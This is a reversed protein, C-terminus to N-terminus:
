FGKAFGIGFSPQVTNGSIGTVTMGLTLYMQNAPAGVQYAVLGGGTFTGLTVATAVSLGAQGIAFLSFKGQQFVAYAAGTTVIAGTRIGPVMQMASWSYLNSDSVRVGFTGVTSTRGLFTDASSYPSISEGAGFVYQPLGTVATAAPQTTATQGLACFALVLVLAIVSITKTM